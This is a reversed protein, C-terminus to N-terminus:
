SKGGSTGGGTPRWAKMMEILGQCVAMGGLGVLFSAAGQTVGIGSMSRAVIEGVYNATLAGILVSTVFSWPDTRRFYLANVVGGLFGAMLDPVKLGLYLLWDKM